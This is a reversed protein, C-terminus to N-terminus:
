KKRGMSNMLSGMSGHKIFIAVVFVMLALAAFIIILLSVSRAGSNNLYGDPRFNYTVNVSTGAFDSATDNVTM